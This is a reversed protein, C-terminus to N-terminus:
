TSGLVWDHHLCTLAKIKKIKIKKRFPPHSCLENNVLSPTVNKTRAVSFQRTEQPLVFM